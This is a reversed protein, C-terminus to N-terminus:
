LPRSMLENIFSAQELGAEVEKIDLNMNSMKGKRFPEAMTSPRTSARPSTKFNLNRTTGNMM